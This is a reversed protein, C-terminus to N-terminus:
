RATLSENGECEINGQIEAHERLPPERNPRDSVKYPEVLSVHFVTHIRWHAPIHLKFAWHGKKQLDKVPGYLRPTYKRTRRKSKINKARLMVLDGIEIDPEPTELEDYYKNMEERTQKLTRRANEQVRKMWHTYITAGPNQAVREMM